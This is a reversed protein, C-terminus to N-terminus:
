DEILYFLPQGYEEQGYEAILKKAEDGTMWEILANAGDVNLGDIKGPNVAILSYTSDRICM